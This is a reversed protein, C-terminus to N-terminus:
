TRRQVGMYSCSFIYKGFFPLMQDSGQFFLLLQFHLSIVPHKFFSFIYHSFTCLYAQMYMALSSTILLLPKSLITYNYSM